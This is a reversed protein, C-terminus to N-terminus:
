ETPQPPRPDFGHAKLHLAIGEQAQRAQEPTEVVPPFPRAGAAPPSQIGRASALVWLKVIRQQQPCRPDRAQTASINADPSLRAVLDSPQMVVDVNVLPDSESRFSLQFDLARALRELVDSFHADRAILHVGSECGAASIRIEQALAAPGAVPAFAAVAAIACVASLRRGGSRPSRGAADKAGANVVRAM